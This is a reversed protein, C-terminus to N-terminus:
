RKMKNLKRHKPDGKQLHFTQERQTPNYWHRTITEQTPSNRDTNQHISSSRMERFLLETDLLLNEPTQPNLTDKPLGEPKPLTLCRNRCGSWLPGRLMDECDGAGWNDRPDNGTSRGQVAPQLRSPLTKPPGKRLEEVTGAAHPPKHAKTKDWRGAGKTTPSTHEGRSAGLQGKASCPNHTSALNIHRRVRPERAQWRTPAM